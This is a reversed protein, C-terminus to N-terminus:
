KKKRKVAKKKKSKKNKRVFHIVLFILLVVLFVAGVILVILKWDIGREQTLAVDQSNFKDAEENTITFDETWEWKKEGASVVIHATYDGAVMRDGNMEVPFDILSNPAMRMGAKKTDYLVEEEGKKTIQVDTTAEELYASQVNSFNVYVSNRYNFLGAYVKNFSLDPEVPTDTESLLMGVLFAYENIVGTKETEDVEETSVKKLQIGGSIHGNFEEEPMSIDLNLAVVSAPPIVVETPAKVVDVFDYKLSADNEIATPGYEIVGNANTKASNLSVGVTIEEQGSNSLEIQVTQKQGPTMKLDFYGATGIQNEPKVVNYTFGMGDQSAEAQVPIFSVVITTIFIYLLFFARGKNKM